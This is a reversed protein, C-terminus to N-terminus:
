STVSSRCCRAACEAASRSPLCRKACPWLSMWKQPSTTQRAQFALLDTDVGTVFSSEAVEIRRLRDDIAALLDMQARNHKTLARLLTSRDEVLQWFILGEYKDVKNLLRQRDREPAQAFVRRMDALQYLLARQEESALLLMWDADRSPPTTELAAVRASMAEIEAALEDRRTILHEEFMIERALSARRRQESALEDYIELEGPLAELWTAIGNLETWELLLEHVDETALWELWDTHGLQERWEDM